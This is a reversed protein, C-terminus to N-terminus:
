DCLLMLGIVIVQRGGKQDDLSKRAIPKQTMGSFSARSTRIDTSYSIGLLKADPNSHVLSVAGYETETLELQIGFACIKDNECSISTWTGNIPNNILSIGDTTIGPTNLLIINVYNTVRLGSFYNLMYSDKYQGAPPIVTMSPDAAISLDVAGGISFQLLLVPYVSTFCCFRNASIEFETFDGATPLSRGDTINVAGTCFWSLSNNDRSSIARFRDRPRTMFSATYFETGWTATPSIQEVMHDCYQLDFPMNGCEHGSFFALPKDSVVHTGTLDEPSSLFVAKGQGITLKISTGAPTTTGIIIRCRPM